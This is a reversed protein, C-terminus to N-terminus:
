KIYKKVTEVVESPLFHAKILYDNAGLRKARKVDDVEGLNSLIIVPIDKLASDAKMEELVAFGDKKPMIVDLLAVDPRSARMAALAKEGDDAVVVELGERDLKLAYMKQLFQDDEALLVKKAETKAM